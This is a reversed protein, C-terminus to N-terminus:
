CTKFDADKTTLERLEKIAERCYVSLSMIMPALMAKNGNRKLDEEITDALTVVDEMGMIALNSKMKHITQGLLDRKGKKYFSEIDSMMLPVNSIFLETVERILNKKNNLAKKLYNLDITSKFELNGTYAPVAPLSGQEENVETDPDTTALGVLVNIKKILVAPDFPKSLYDNMGAELCRQRESETANATLAIIPIQRGGNKAKMRIARTAELGGMVPMNVDMLLIDFIGASLKDIAEKGNKVLEVVTGYEKLLEVAYKQNLLDDEAMLIRLNASLTQQGSAAIEYPITVSFVSGKGPRSSVGITGQQGEALQKVISLGLGTGGYKRTIASGAQTYTEFLTPLMEEEIGIGTDSIIFTLPIKDGCKKGTKVQVTVSGKETFKIGNSILNILIQNLRAPDGTITAPVEADFKRILRIGKKDAQAKLLDTVASIASVPHFPIEEFLMKGAELKGLDLIDNVLALLNNGASAIANIHNQQTRTLKSRLLLDTFGNIANLPTRLEHSM